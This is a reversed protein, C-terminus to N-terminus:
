SHINKIENEDIISILAITFGSDSYYKYDEKFDFKLLIQMQKQAM